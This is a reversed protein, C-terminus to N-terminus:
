IIDLLCEQRIDINRKLKAYYVTYTDVMYELADGNIIGLRDCYNEIRFRTNTGIRKMTTVFVNSEHQILKKVGKFMVM